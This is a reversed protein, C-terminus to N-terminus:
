ANAKEKKQKTYQDEWNKIFELKEEISWSSLYANDKDHIKLVTEEDYISADSVLEGLHEQSFDKAEEATVIDKAFEIAQADTLSEGLNLEEIAEVPIVYRMRFTSVTTVVAYKNSM